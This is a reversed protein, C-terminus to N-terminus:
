EGGECCEITRKETVIKKVKRDHPECPLEDFLQKEYALGIVPAKVGKLFRDYYGGGYGLRNGKSDFGVGPAVVLDIEKKPCEKGDLPELMGLKNKTLNDFGDLFVAVLRDDKTIPVTVRKGQEMAKKALRKTRVESGFSLYLMVTKANKWEELGFLRKRILWSRLHRGVLGVRKRRGIAESRAKTKM